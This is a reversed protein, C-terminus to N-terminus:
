FTLGYQITYSHTLHLQKVAIETVKEGKFSLTRKSSIRYECGSQDTNIVFDPHFEPIITSTQVQFVKAIDLLEQFSQVEKNSVFKTVHRQSIRHTSKFNDTWHKSAKFSFTESQMQNAAAMAWQRLM